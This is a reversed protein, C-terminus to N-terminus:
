RTECESGIRYANAMITFTITTAPVSPFVSSDVLHIREWGHPRGALDTEGPGPTRSMPFTSGHHNSKGPLGRKMMPGVPMLGLNRSNKSLKHLTKTVVSNPADQGVGQLVAKPGDMRLTMSASEESHVFGM